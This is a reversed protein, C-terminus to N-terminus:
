LQDEIAIDVVNITGQNNNNKQLWGDFWGDVMRGGQNKVKRSSPSHSHHLSSPDKRPIEPDVKVEVM